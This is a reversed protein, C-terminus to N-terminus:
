DRAERKCVALAEHCRAILEQQESETQPLPEDLSLSFRGWGEDIACEVKLEWQGANPEIEFLYAEVGLQDLMGEILQRAEILDASSATM